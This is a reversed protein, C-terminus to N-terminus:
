TIQNCARFFKQHYDHKYFKNTLLCIFLLNPNIQYSHFPFLTQTTTKDALRIENAMFLEAVAPTYMEQIFEIKCEHLLCNRVRL